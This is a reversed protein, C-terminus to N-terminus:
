RVQFAREVTKSEIRPTVPDFVDVEFPRGVRNGCVDELRTDIVLRYDGRLWRDRSAFTLLREGGGVTLAGPVKTGAADVVWVMRGLLAHDLPTPLHVILPADSGRRPPTIAWAAPDVAREEAPTATFTKRYGSVLPRGEADQWRDSVTLTYGRGAELIPGEEERPVLERKVRGPHFLLTLRTGDVSWLEEDLELFPSKVEVGDDRVLKLHRYVDGRAVQGSFHVYFRLTNEPLRNASPYVATVGVRPGPEARPLRVLVEVPKEGGEGYGKLDLVVRYKLGAVLPFLPEFRIGTKTLTHTGTVPPRKAAEAPSGGAVAVRLIENWQRATPRAAVLRTLSEKSLGTVEIFPPEGAKGPALRISPGPEAAFCSAAVAFTLSLLSM